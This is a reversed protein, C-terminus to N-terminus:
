RRLLWSREADGRSLQADIMRLLKMVPPAACATLVAQGILVPILSLGPVAGLWWRLGVAVISACVSGVLTFVVQPLVGELYIRRALSRGLLYVCALSLSQVGKPSGGLVDALYGLALALAVGPIDLAGRARARLDLSSARSLSARRDSVSTYLVFILPVDIAVLELGLLRALPALLTMLVFALLAFSLLRSM